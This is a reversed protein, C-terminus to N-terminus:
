KGTFHESITALGMSYGNSASSALSVSSTIDSPVAAFSLVISSPSAYHAQFWQSTYAVQILNSNSITENWGTTTGATTGPATLPGACHFSTLTSFTVLSLDSTNSSTVTKPVGNLTTGTVPYNASVITAGGTNSVTSSGTGANVNASYVKLQQHTVVFLTPWSAGTWTFTYTGSSSTQATATVASTVAGTAAATVTLDAGNRSTFSATNTTMTPAPMSSTTPKVVTWNADQALPATSVASTQASEVGSTNVFTIKYYYTTGNTLGTDIYANPTVIALTNIKSYTGTLTASRYVNYGNGFVPTWTLLVQQEGGIAALNRPSTVTNTTASVQTSNPGEGSSNTASIVYYYPTGDGLGTDSYSTTGLGSIVTTYPGGTVASRKVTYTTAGSVAGWTLDIQGLASPVTAVVGTPAVPVVAFASHAAGLVGSLAIVTTFANSRLMVRQRLTRRVHSLSM